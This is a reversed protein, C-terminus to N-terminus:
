EPSLTEPDSQSLVSSNEQQFADRVHSDNLSRIDLSPQRTIKPATRPRFDLECIVPRHDSSLGFDSPIFCRCIFRMHTSPVFIHDLVARSRYRPHRWTWRKSDRLRFHSSVHRLRHQSAVSLLLSGNANPTLDNKLSYPGVTASQFGGFASDSQGLRRGVRVNYDGLLWSNASAVADLHTYFKTRVDSRSLNTPSYACILTTPHKTDNLLMRVLM